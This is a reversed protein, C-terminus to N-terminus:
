VAKTMELTKQKAAEVDGKSISKKAQALITNISDIKQSRSQLEM